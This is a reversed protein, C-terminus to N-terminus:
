EGRECNKDHEKDHNHGHHYHEHHEDESEVLVQTCLVTRQYNTDTGAEYTNNSNVDTFTDIVLGGYPCQAVSAAYQKIVANKGNAGSMGAPGVPGVISQGDRGAPGVPGIISQGDKGNTATVTATETEKCSLLCLMTLTLIYKM